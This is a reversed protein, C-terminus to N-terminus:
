GEDKKKSKPQPLCVPISFSIRSVTNEKRNTEKEAKGSVIGGLVSIGGGGKTGSGSEAEVAVDFKIDEIHIGNVGVRYPNIIANSDGSSSQASEIGSIVQNLTTEIFDQLNM